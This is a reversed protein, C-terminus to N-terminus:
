PNNAPALKHRLSKGNCPVNRRCVGDRDTAYGPIAFTAVGIRLLIGKMKPKAGQPEHSFRTLFTRGSQDINHDFNGPM